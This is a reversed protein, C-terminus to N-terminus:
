KESKPPHDPHWEAVQQDAWAQLGALPIRVARGIRVVPIQNGAALMQYLMARSLGLLDAAEQVRLLIRTPAPTSNDTAMSLRRAFFVTAM